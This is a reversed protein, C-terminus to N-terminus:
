CTFTLGWVVGCALGLILVLAAAVEAAKAWGFRGNNGLRVSAMWVLAALALMAAALPGAVQHIDDVLRNTSPICLRLDTISITSNTKM